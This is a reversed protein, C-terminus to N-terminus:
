PSGLPTNNPVRGGFRGASEQWATEWDEYLTETPRSGFWIPLGAERFYPHEVEGVQRLEEFYGPLRDSYGIYILHSCGPKRPVWQMFADNFSYVPAAAGEPRHYLAAGAHGYNEGYVWTDSRVSDPLEAYFTWTKEGLEDWGVMDAYDQPLPHVQGDEWKLLVDMGRNIMKEGFAVM